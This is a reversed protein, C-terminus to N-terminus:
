PNIVLFNISIPNVTSIATTGVLEVVINFGGSSITNIRGIMERSADGFLPVLTILVISNATVESNNVRFSSPTSNLVAGMTIRGATTNITVQGTGTQTVTGVTFKPQSDTQLADYVANVHGVRAVTADSSKKFYKKYNFIDIFAM